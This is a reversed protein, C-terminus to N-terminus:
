ILFHITVLIKQLHGSINNLVSENLHGHLTKAWECTDNANMGEEKGKM